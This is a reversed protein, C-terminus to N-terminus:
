EASKKRPTSTPKSASDDADTAEDADVREGFEPEGAPTELADHSGDAVTGAAPADEAAAEPEVVKSLTQRHVRLRTGPTTEIIAENTDENVSILTGFIGQSTMVEAGPVMKTQLEAAERQRKRSNRFMFILMVAFVVVLGITLFNQDV